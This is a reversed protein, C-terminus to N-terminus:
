PVFPLAAVESPMKEAAHSTVDQLATNFLSALINYDQATTIGCDAALKTKIAAIEDPLKGLAGAAAQVSALYIELKTKM